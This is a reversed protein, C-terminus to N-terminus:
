KVYLVRRGLVNGDVRDLVNVTAERASFGAPLPVSGRLSEYGGISMPTPKASITRPVGSDATGAVQLQMVGNLAAGTARDRTLLIEYNLNNASASFRAARVNVTGGRPDPPLLGILSQIDDRLGQTTQTSSATRDTLAKHDAVATALKQATDDLSRKLQQREADAQDYAKTLKVSEQASLRPPLYREQVFVVGGVGIAIGVLLLM